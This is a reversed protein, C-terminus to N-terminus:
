QETIHISGSARDWCAMIPSGHSQYILSRNEEADDTSLWLLTSGYTCRLLLSSSHLDQHIHAGPRVWCQLIPPWSIAQGAGKEVESLATYIGSQGTLLLLFNIDYAAQSSSGSQKKMTFSPPLWLGGTGSLQGTLTSSTDPGERTGPLPKLPFVVHILWKEM